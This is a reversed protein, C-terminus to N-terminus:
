LRSTTGKLYEVLGATEDEEGVRVNNMARVMAHYNAEDEAYLVTETARRRWWDYYCHSVGFFLGLTVYSFPRAALPEKTCVRAMFQVGTGFMFGYRFANPYKHVIENNSM